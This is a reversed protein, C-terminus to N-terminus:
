LRPQLWPPCFVKSSAFNTVTLVEANSISANMLNPGGPQYFDYPHLSLKIVAASWGPPVNQPKSTWSMQYISGGSHLWSMWWTSWGCGRLTLSAVCSSNCLWHASVIDCVCEACLWHTSSWLCRAPVGRACQARSSACGECSKHNGTVSYGPLSAFFYM